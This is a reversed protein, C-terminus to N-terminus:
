QKQEGSHHHHKPVETPTRGKLFQEEQKEEEMDGPSKPDLKEMEAIEAPSLDKLHRIFHVLKWSDQQGAQSGGWAPMGTLRIGNEIIFFLEGDTMSQTPAKRMDPAPPYMRRGMEIDGSGNNAHCVSCHDAWHAMAEALVEPSRPIPNQKIKADRPLALDRAAQALVVEVAMPQARASFGNARTKVLIFGAAAALIVAAVAGTIVWLLRRM